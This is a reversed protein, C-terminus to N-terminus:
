LSLTKAYKKIAVEASYHSKVTFTKYPAVEDLAEMVLNNFTSAMEDVNTSECVVEWDKQALKELWRKQTFNKLSIKRIQRIYVKQKLNLKISSIM